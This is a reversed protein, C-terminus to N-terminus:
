AIGELVCDTMVGIVEAEENAAKVVNSAEALEKAMIPEDFKQLEKQMDAISNDLATDQTDTFGEAKTEVAKTNIHEAVEESGISINRRAARAREAWTGRRASQRYDVISNFSQENPVTRGLRLATMDDASKVDVVGKLAEIRQINALAGQDMAMLSARTTRKTTLDLGAAKLSQIESFLSKTAVDQDGFKSISIASDDWIVFNRGDLDGGSFLGAQYELGKIGYENLVLSAQKKSGLRDALGEVISKGNNNESLLVSLDPRDKAFKSIASRVHSSQDKIKKDWQILTSNDPIEVRAMKGVKRGTAKEVQAISPSTATTRLYRRMRRNEWKISEKIEDVFMPSTNNEKARRVDSEIDEELKSIRNRIREIEPKDSKKFVTVTWGLASMSDRQFSHVIDPDQARGVERGQTYYEELLDVPIVINSSVNSRYWNAIGERNTFYLGWGFAQAGEGFESNIMSTQFSGFEELDGSFGTGHFAVTRQERQVLDWVRDVAQDFDDASDILARVRDPLQVDKARHIVPDIGIVDEVDVRYGEVLQAISARMSAERAEPSVDAMLRGTVGQPQTLPIGKHRKVADGIAGAGMHLGGGMITGFTVNMLSDNFNYDLQELDAASLVIPEVLAAGVAGELAGKRARIMARSGRSSASGLASLYKAQGYVPIFSAAVNIPDLVSVALATTFKLSGGIFGSDHRSIVDNIRREDM